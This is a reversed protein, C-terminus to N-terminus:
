HKNKRQNFLEVMRKKKYENTGYKRIKKYLMAINNTPSLTEVILGNVVMKGEKEGELLINYLTEGNYDILEVGIDVMTVLKYAEVLNGKYLVKHNNTILTDKCPMNKMLAGYKILVLKKEQTQTQTLEEIKEGRITDLNIDIQEINKYGNDTLVKEGRPFCINSYPRLITDVNFTLIASTDMYNVTVSNNVSKDIGYDTTINARYHTKTLEEFQSINISSDPVFSTVLNTDLISSASTDLLPANFYVDLQTSSADYTLNTNSITTETINRARTDIYFPDITEERTGDNYTFTLPGLNQSMDVTITANLSTDIVTNNSLSYKVYQNFSMDSSVDFDSLENTYFDLTLNAINSLYTFLYNKGQYTTTINNIIDLIKVDRERTDVEFDITRYLHKTLTDNRYNFSYDIIFSVNEFIGSVDTEINGTLTYNILNVNTISLNNNTVSLSNSIDLGHLDDKTFTVTFNSKKDSHTMKTVSVNSIDPLITDIDFVVEGSKGQVFDDSQIGHVSVKADTYNFENIENNSIELIGTWQMKFPESIIDKILLHESPELSILDYINTRDQLGVDFNITIVCSPDEYSLSPESLTVSSVNPVIGYLPIPQTDLTEDRYNITINFSTDYIETLLTLKSKWIEKNDSTKIFSGCSVDLNNTLTMIINEPDEVDKDFEVEVDGSTDLYTLKNPVIVNSINPLVTNVNVTLTDMRYEVVGDNRSPDLEEIYSLNFSGDVEGLITLMGHWFRNEFYGSGTDLSVDGNNLNNSSITIFNDCIDTYSFQELNNSVIINFTFSVDTELKNTIYDYTLYNISQSTGIGRPGMEPLTIYLGRETTDLRYTASADVNILGDMGSHQLYLGAEPYFEGSITTIVGTWIKSDSSIPNMDISSFVAVSPDLYINMSADKGHFYYGDHDNFTITVIGSVDTYLINEIEISSVDPIITNVEIDINSVDYNGRYNFSIDETNKIGYNVSVDYQVVSYTSYVGSTSKMNAGSNLSSGIIKDGNSNVNIGRYEDAYSYDVEYGMDQLFGISVASLPMITNGSETWGTMLEEDLGEHPHGGIHRTQGEIRHEEPHVNVTGAGGDDEIPIGVLSADNMYMKYKALANAGTYYYKTVGNEEYAVRPSNNHGFYPGIGIIHGIEHMLVYYLTTNGDTRTENIMSNYSAQSLAIFGSSTYINDSYDIQGNHNLDDYYVYDVYAYGLTGADMDSVSFTIHMKTTGGPAGNNVDIPHRTIINDWKQLASKVINESADGEITYTFNVLPHDPPNNVETVVLSATDQELQQKFSYGINSSSTLVLQDRDLLKKNFKVDLIGETAAYTLMNPNLNIESISPVVTDINLTINSSDAGLYDKITIVQTEAYQGIPDVILNYSSDSLKNLSLNMKAANYSLDTLEVDQLLAKDFELLITGSTDIYNFSNNNTIESIQPVYTNYTKTLNFSVDSNFSVDIQYNVDVNTDTRPFLVNAQWKYGDIRTLDSVSGSNNIIIQNLSFDSVSIDRTFEVNLTGSNDIYTINENISVDTIELQVSDLSFVHVGSIDNSETYMLKNNSTDFGTNPEFSGTLKFDNFDLSQSIITGINSPDITLYENTVITNLSVDNTSFLIEFNASNVGLAINSPTMTLSQVNRTVTSQKSAEAINITASTNINVVELQGLNEIINDNYDLLQLNVSNSAYILINKIKVNQSTFIITFSKEIPEITANVTSTDNINGNMIFDGGGTGDSKVFSCNAKLLLSGIDNTIEVEKITLAETLSTGIIKLKRGEVFDGIERPGVILEPNKAVHFNLSTDYGNYSFDIVNHLLNMYDTKSITGTWTDNNLTMVGASAIYSPSITVDPTGSSEVPLRFKVGLTSNSNPELISRPNMSIDEIQQLTDVSFPITMSADLQANTFHFTLSCDPENIYFTPEFSITRTNGSGSVGGIQGCSSPSIQIANSIDVNTLDSRNLSLIVNNSQYNEYTVVSNDFVFGNIQLDQISYIDFANSSFDEYFLKVGSVNHEGSADVHGELTFGYNTLSTNSINAVNSPDVSLNGIIDNLTKDNTTLQITFNTSLDPYEINSPDLAISTAKHQILSNYNYVKALGTYSNSMKSGVILTNGDSSISVSNGFWGNDLEGVIIKDQIWNTSDFKYIRVDGLENSNTPNYYPSGIVVTNGDSSISVSWGLRDLENDGYIDSGVQVWNSNNNQFIRVTGTRDGNIDSDPSGIAIINGDSSISVSEGFRDGNSVNTNIDSGIKNWSTSYEYISVFGGNNNPAGIAVIQGNHSLSVSFGIQEYNAAGSIIGDPEWISNLYKFIKVEGKYTNTGRCGIAVIQGNGSLSISWGLQDQSGIGDIDDGIQTWNTNYQYIRVVGPDFSKSSGIAVIQGDYSLSVSGGFQEGGYNGSIDSGIQEWNTGYYEYIQVIGINNNGNIDRGTSSIAIRKGDGSIVVATGFYDGSSNGNLVDGQLSWNASLLNSDEVVDFVLNASVELGTFNLKNGLLNMGPTRTLTGEWIFGNSVDNIPGLTAIYSPDLEIYNNLNTDNPLPTNFEIHLTSSVDVGVLNDPSLTFNQLSPPSLFDGIRVYNSKDNLSFTSIINNFEDLVDLFYNPNIHLQWDQRQWVDIRKIYYENELDIMIYEPSGSSWKITHSFHGLPNDSSGWNLSTDSFVGNNILESSTSPQLSSSSTTSKNLAINVDNHDYVFVQPCIVYGYNLHNNYLKIYRGNLLSM